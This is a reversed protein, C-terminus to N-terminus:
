PMKRYVDIKAGRQKPAYAVSLAVNPPASCAYRHCLKHLQWQNSCSHVKSNDHESTFLGCKKYTHQGCFMCQHTYGRLDELSKEMGASVIKALTALSTSCLCTHLKLWELPRRVTIPLNLDKILGLKILGRVLNIPTGVMPSGATIISM